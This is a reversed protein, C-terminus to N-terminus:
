ESPNAKIPSKASIVKLIREKDEASLTKVIIHQSSTRNQDYKNPTKFAQWVQIPMEKELNPFIEIIENFISGIGKAQVQEEERVSMTKYTQGKILTASNKRLGNM